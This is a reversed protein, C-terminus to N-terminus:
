SHWTLPNSKGVWVCPSIFPSHSGWASGVRSDTGNIGGHFQDALLPRKERKALDGKALMAEVVDSGICTRRAVNESRAQLGQLGRPDHPALEILLPGRPMLIMKRLRTLM